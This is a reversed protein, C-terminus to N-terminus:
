ISRLGSERRVAAVNRKWEDEIVLWDLYGRDVEFTDDIEAPTALISFSIGTESSTFVLFSLEIDHVIGFIRDAEEVFLAITKWTLIM